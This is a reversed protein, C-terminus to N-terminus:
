FAMCISLWNRGHFGQLEGRNGDRGRRSSHEGIKKECCCRGASEGCWRGIGCDRYYRCEFRHNLSPRRQGAGEFPARTSCQYTRFGSAAINGNLIGRDDLHIARVMDEGRCGVVAAIVVEYVEAESLKTLGVGCGEM